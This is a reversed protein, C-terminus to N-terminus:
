KTRHFEGPVLVVDQQARDSRTLCLRSEKDRKSLYNMFVKLCMPEFIFKSLDSFVWVFPLPFATTANYTLSFMFGIFTCSRMIEGFSVLNFLGLLCATRGGHVRNLVEFYTSIAWNSWMVYNIELSINLEPPYNRHLWSCALLVFNEFVRMYTFNIVKYYGSRDPVFWDYAFNDTIYYDSLFYTLIM